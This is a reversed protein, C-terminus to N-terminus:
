TKKRARTPAWGYIGLGRKMVAVKNLPESLDYIQVLLNSLHNTCTPGRTRLTSTNGSYYQSNALVEHAQFQEGCLRGCLAASSLRPFPLRLPPALSPSRRQDHISAIDIAIMPGSTSTSSWHRLSMQPRQAQFELFLTKHTCTGPTWGQLQGLHNATTLVWSDM